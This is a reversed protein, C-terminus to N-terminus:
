KDKRARHCFSFIMKSWIGYKHRYMMSREKRWKNKNAENITTNLSNHRLVGKLKSRDKEVVELFKLGYLYHGKKDVNKWVIEAWVGLNTLGYGWMYLVAVMLQTGLPMDEISHILFGTESADLVIGGSRVHPNYLTWYEFPLDVLVRACKRRDEFFKKCRNKINRLGM